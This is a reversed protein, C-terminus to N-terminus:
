QQFKSIDNVRLAFYPSKKGKEKLFIVFTNDFNFFRTEEEPLLATTMVTMAAESKLEVGKYNMDFKVTEIAQDIVLNTGM